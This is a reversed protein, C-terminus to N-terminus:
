PAERPPPLTEPPTGCSGANSTTESTAASRKLKLNKKGDDLNLHLLNSSSRFVFLYFLVFAENDEGGAGRHRALGM